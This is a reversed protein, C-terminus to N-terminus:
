LCTNKLVYQPKCNGQKIELVGSYYIFLKLFVKALKIMNYNSKGFKRENHVVAINGINKTYNLTIASIYVFSTQDMSIVEAMYKKMARFSSVRIEKPKKCIINFLSDTLRTGINRYFSHKKNAPIGYVVDYGQELANLLKIIEEPPHQLDDDMTVIAEYKAHRLGCMIANQQGFNGDLAIAKVRNDVEHLRCMKMYSNDISGDDIMIIEYDKCSNELFASLRRHLEYLSKEGNYVPIVVSISNFMHM